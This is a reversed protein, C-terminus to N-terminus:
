RAASLYQVEEKGLMVAWHVTNKPLDIRDGPKMLFEAKDTVLKMQGRVIVIFDDFDHKHRGYRTGPKDSFLECELREKELIQRLEDLTPKKSTTIRRVDLMTKM